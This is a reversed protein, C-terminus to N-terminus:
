ISPPNNVMEASNTSTTSPNNIIVLWRHLSYDFTLLSAVVSLNFMFVVPVLLVDEQSPHGAPPQGSELEAQALLQQLQQPTYDQPPVHPSQRALDTDSGAALLVTRSM